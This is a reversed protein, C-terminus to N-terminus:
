RYILIDDIYVVIGRDIFEALVDNVKQQFVLPANCLGFPMVLYEYLGYRTKFATKWEDGETIRILNFGNKLDLKSFIRSNQVHEMLTTMLPLPYKDKKTIANLGRYDVVLRLKGNRNKVFFIPAGASSKSPRIKGQQLMEDIYEKLLQLEEQSLPYLKGSPPSTGELLEIAIDNPGHDPLAKQMAEQFLKIFEHYQKPLRDFLEKFTVDVEEAMDIAYIQKASWSKIDIYGIITDEKCDAFTEEWDDHDTIIEIKDSFSKTKPKTDIFELGPPNIQIKSVYQYIWDTGIVVQTRQPLKAVEFHMPVKRFNDTNADKIEVGLDVVIYKGIEPVTNGSISTVHLPTPRLRWPMELSQVLDKSIITVDAGTDCLANLTMTHPSGSKDTWQFKVPIYFKVGPKG